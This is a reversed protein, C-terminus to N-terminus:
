NVFIYFFVPFKSFLTVMKCFSLKTGFSGMVNKEGLRKIGSIREVMVTAIAAM